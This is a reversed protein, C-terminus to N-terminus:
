VEKGPGADDSFTLLDLFTDQHVPKGAVAPAADADEPVDAPRIRDRTVVGPVSGPKRVAGREDPVIITGCVACPFPQTMFVEDDGVREESESLILNNKLIMERSSPTSLDLFERRLEVDPHALMLGKLGHHPFGFSYFDIEPLNDSDNDWKIANHDWSRVQLADVLCATQQERTGVIKVFSHYKQAM